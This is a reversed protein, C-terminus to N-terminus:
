SFNTGSKCVWPGSGISDCAYEYVTKNDTPYMLNRKKDYILEKAAFQKLTFSDCDGISMVDARARDEVKARLEEFTVPERNEDYIRCNYFQLVYKWDEWSSIPGLKELAAERAYHHKSYTHVRFYWGCSSKGIHVWREELAECDKCTQLDCLGDCKSEEKPSFDCYFNLGM